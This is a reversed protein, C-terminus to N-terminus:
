EDYAFEIYLQTQPPVYSKQTQEETQINLYNHFSV